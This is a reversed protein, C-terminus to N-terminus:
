GGAAAGLLDLLDLEHAVSQMHGAHQLPLAFVQRSGVWGESLAGAAGAALWSSAAPPKGAATPSLAPRRAPPHDIRGSARSVLVSTPKL